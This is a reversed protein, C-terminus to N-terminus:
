LTKRKFPSALDLFALLRPIQNSELRPSALKHLVIVASLVHPPPTFSEAKVTRIYNVEYALNLLRWLYSKKPADVKIKNAVEKQVLFVGGPLATIDFFFRRLIPSTIYYPLNGVVITSATPFTTSGFTIYGKPEEHIKQQLM